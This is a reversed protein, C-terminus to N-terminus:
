LMVTIKSHRTVPTFCLSVVKGVKESNGVQKTIEIKSLDKRM